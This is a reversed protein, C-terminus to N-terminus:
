SWADATDDPAHITVQGKGDYGFRATKLVCPTGIESVAAELEELTEVEQWETTAIGAENIFFKEAARDQAMDLIEWSPRTPHLRSLFKLTRVPINEWEFTVVDVQEAFTGLADEDEFDAVTVEHCVQETPGDHELTYVHVKYGLRAAAMSAMRGLQGGGLMGITRGTPVRLPKGIEEPM